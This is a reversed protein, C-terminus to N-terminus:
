WISSRSLANEKKQEWTQWPLLRRPSVVLPTTQSQQLLRNTTSSTECTTRIL